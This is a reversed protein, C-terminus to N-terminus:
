CLREARHRAESERDLDSWLSTLPTLAQAPSVSLGVRPERQQVCRFVQQVAVAALREFTPRALRLNLVVLRRHETSTSNAPRSQQRDSSSGSLYLFIRIAWPTLIM